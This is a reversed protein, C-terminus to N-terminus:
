IFSKSASFAVCFVEARHLTGNMFFDLFGPWFPRFNDFHDFIAIKTRKEQKKKLFQVKCLALTKQTANLADFDKM